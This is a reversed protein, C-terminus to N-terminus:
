DGAVELQDDVRSVGATRNAIAVITAKEVANEVPGRLVVVGNQTIIKVNKANTSLADDSVVNERIFKTTALDAESNGQDLPTVSAENRDRVNRESNDAEGAAYSAAPWTLLLAAIAITTTRRM